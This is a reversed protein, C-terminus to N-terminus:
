EGVEVVSVGDAHLLKAAYLESAVLDTALLKSEREEEVTPVKQWIVGLADVKIIAMLYKGEALTGNDTVFVPITGNYYGICGDIVVGNGEASTTRTASTFADMKMFAPRLTSHIIIGAFTSNDVDDGFVNFAEDVVEATLEPATDKYTSNKRIDEVLDTDVAKAMADALQTALKDKTAGKVQTSDKDYLRVSKGVQKIPAVADTMNLEDPVMPTGKEVVAADTIRDIVPFHVESGYTTIDGVAETYDTALKTVRLKVGLRANVVDAFIKPTIINPM